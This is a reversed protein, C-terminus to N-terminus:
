LNFYTIDGSGTSTHGGCKVSKVSQDRPRM